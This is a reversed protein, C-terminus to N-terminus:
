REASGVSPSLLWASACGSPSMGRDFSAIVHEFFSEVTEEDPLVLRDGLRHEVDVRYREIPDETRTTGATQDGPGGTPVGLKM